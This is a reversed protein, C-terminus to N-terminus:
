KKLEYPQASYDPYTPLDFFQELTRSTKSLEAALEVGVYRLHWPEYQYGTLSQMNKQYRVTFGYKYSNAALWRGEPTDGFCVELQCKGSLAGLDAAFGTQHESHGPQASTADAYAKGQSSVYGDYLSQQINYSRYGSVLSLKIGDSMAAGVLKELSTSADKRMHMNEASASQTLSVNPVVLDAPVYSSPLIRGKNVVAWISDPDNTSYQSKNLGVKSQDNSEQVPVNTHYSSSAPNKTEQYDGRWWVIAAVVAALSLLLLIKKALRRRASPHIVM